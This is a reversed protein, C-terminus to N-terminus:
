STRMAVRRMLQEYRDVSARADFIAAVNERPRTYASPDALVRAIGDALHTSDRPRVVVGMGTVRVPERAGPIDTVVVPTGCLMAELQVAPFMDTRSPLVFVDCMAYFDALRRADHILGVFTIADRHRELLPRCREYFNEYAIAHEGAYVLHVSPDRAQLSPLAALLYDFGKEEVFRGAFGVVHKRELGLERRWADSEDPRPLPIEAPPYIAVVKEHFPRLFASHAAYDSTHPCVVTALRAAVSLMANGLGEISQNVFGSPMVLDGQHTMVLPTRRLRALGALVAAEPMPTHVHVVDHRGILRHAALPLSPVIMGRSFRGLPRLRVVSVGGITEREPLEPLHRTTLVTVQHGRAALGEALRKAYATLGTWHPDYYTLATLIRM